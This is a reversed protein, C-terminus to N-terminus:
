APDDNSAVGTSTLRSAGDQRDTPGPTRPLHRRRRHRWRVLQKLGAHGNNQGDLLIAIQGPDADLVVAATSHRSRAPARGNAQHCAACNAAYGERRGQSVTWRGNRRRDDAKAAAEKNEADVWASYEAASVVCPDAHLAHKRAACNLASATFDGTKEARFWTDRM